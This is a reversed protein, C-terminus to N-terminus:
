VAGVKTELLYIKNGQRGIYRLENSTSLHLPGNKGVLLHDFLESEQGDIVAMWKHNRQAIFLAHGSDSSFLVGGMGIGDYSHGSVKREVLVRWKGDASGAV